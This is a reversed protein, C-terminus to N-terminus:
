PHNPGTARDARADRMDSESSRSQLNEGPVEIPVKQPIRSQPAPCPAIIPLSTFRVAWIRPPDILFEIDSHLVFKESKCTLIGFTLNFNLIRVFFPKKKNSVSTPLYTHTHTHTPM